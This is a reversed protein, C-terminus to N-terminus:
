VLSEYIRTLQNLFNEVSFDKRDRITKKSASVLIEPNKAIEIIKTKLVELETSPVFIGSERTGEVLLPDCYIVPRLATVSEVIVMPQNDWGVSTIVTAHCQAILEQVQEHPIRGLIKIGHHRNAIKHVHKAEEGSGIVYIELSNEPLETLAAVAADLFDIIRKEAVFRGIWLLKVPKKIDVLVQASGPFEMCNPQVYINELGAKALDEAQHKSPSVIASVERAITLTMNRLASNGPQAALELDTNPFKTMFHHYKPVGWALFNQIPWATQWYFTHITHVVPLDLIQAARIAAAAIAFETHIHVVQIKRSVFIGTFFDILEDTVRVIPLGRVPMRFWIPVAIAEVNEYDGLESLKPCAVSLAVVQFRKALQKVQEFYATEAGGLTAMSYDSVLCIREVTQM